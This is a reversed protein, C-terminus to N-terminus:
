ARTNYYKKTSASQAKTCRSIYNLKKFSLSVGLREKL